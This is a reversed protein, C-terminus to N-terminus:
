VKCRLQQGEIMRTIFSISLQLPNIWPLKIFPGNESTLSQSFIDYLSLSPGLGALASLWAWRQPFIMIASALSSLSGSLEWPWLPTCVTILMRTATSVCPPPTHLYSFYRERQDCNEWSRALVKCWHAEVQLSFWLPRPLTPQPPWHLVSILLSRTHPLSFM